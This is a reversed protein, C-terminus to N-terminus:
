GEVLRLHRQGKRALFETALQKMRDTNDGMPEFMPQDPDNIPESQMRKLNLAEMVVPDSGEDSYLFYALVPSSQGDRNLRGIAQLHMGPAWDLEGFVCVSCREQLGDLGAAARVSMILLNTDGNMFAAANDQKQKGSEKGTFFLPNHDALLDRWLSYCKHHWGLLLVPEGSELIMRVFAAVYPAKAVGTAERLKWDFTSAAQMREFPKNDKSLIQEALAEAEIGTLDDLVDANCDVVYPIQQVAPLERGVDERTRRLFVGQERLFQGFAAPDNVKQKTGGGSCWERSFEDRTGLVDPALIDLINFMEGGYNFIPTGSLGARLSTEAAIMQAAHYKDSGERRLEQVEDFVVARMKGRLHDGWGRLKSYNMIIVDPDHGKMRSPINYPDVKTVIHTRLWPLITHLENEWQRPLHTPCVVLAPLYQPDAFVAGGSASKGLGLEDALLLQGSEMMLDAAIRQYDRLPRALEQLGRDTVAGGMIELVREESRLIETHRDALYQLTFGDMELGWRQMFWVLDRIVDATNKVTIQGRAWSRVRPFMRKLRIAVHPECEIVFRSGEKDYTLTGYTRM